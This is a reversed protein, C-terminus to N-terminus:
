HSHVPEDAARANGDHAHPLIQIQVAGERKAALRKAAAEMALIALSTTEVNAKGKPRGNPDYDTIWGGDEAQQALLKEVIAPDAADGLRDAAILALALKYTAYIHRKQAVRDNFGEGDWMALGRQLHERAKAPDGEAMSALFLLDAYEEWGSMETDTVVETKIVKGGVQRVEQLQYQRFPLPRKAEGFVIEIKGSERVGNSEIAARIKQALDAHSKEFVKAALYNDHYLWYVSSGRYEPLLGLSPDFLGVLFARGKEAAQEDEQREFAAGIEKLIV